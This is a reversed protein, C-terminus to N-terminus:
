RLLAAQPTRHWKPWGITLWGKAALTRALKRGFLHGTESHTGYVTRYEEPLEQSIFSSVEKRFENQKGTFTFHM